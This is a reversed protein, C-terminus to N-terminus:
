DEQLRTVLAYIAEASDFNKMKIDNPKIRIDFADNLETILTLLDFSDLINDSILAKESKFDIDPRIGELIEYLEEM